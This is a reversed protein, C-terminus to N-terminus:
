RLIYQQLQSCLLGAGGGAGLQHSGHSLQQGAQHRQRVQVVRPRLLHPSHPSSARHPRMHLLGQLGQKCTGIADNSLREEGARCRGCSGLRAHSAALKMACSWGSTVAMRSCTPCDEQQHWASLQALKLLWTAPAPWAWYQEPSAHQLSRKEADICSCQEQVDCPAAPTPM